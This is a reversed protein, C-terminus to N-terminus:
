EAPTFDVFYEKGVILQKEAEDNKILIEISGLPTFEGFIESTAPIMKVITPKTCKCNFTTELETKLTVKYKCRIM